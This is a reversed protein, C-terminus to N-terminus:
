DEKEKDKREPKIVEPQAPTEAAAEAAPEETTGRIVVHALLLDPDARVVV